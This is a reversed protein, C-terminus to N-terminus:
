VEVVPPKSVINSCSDKPICGSVANINDIEHLIKLLTIVCVLNITASFCNQGINDFIIMNAQPIKAISLLINDM